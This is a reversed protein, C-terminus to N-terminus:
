HKKNINMKMFLDECVEDLSNLRYYLGCHSIKCFEKPDEREDYLYSLDNIRHIKDTLEFDVSFVPSLKYLQESLNSLIKDFGSYM